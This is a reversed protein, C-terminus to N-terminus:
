PDPNQHVKRNSDILKSLRPFLTNRNSNKFYFIREPKSKKQTHQIQTDLDMKNEPRVKVKLDNLESFLAQDFNSHPVRPHPGVKCSIESLGVGVGQVRKHVLSQNYCGDLYSIM